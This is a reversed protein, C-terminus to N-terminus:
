ASYTRLQHAKLDEFAQLVARQADLYGSSKPGFMTALADRASPSFKLPNNDVAEVTTHNSSRALRKAQQRANLLQMLNETVLRLVSGIQQALEAPSSSAVIDEPLGAAKILRVAFDDSSTNGTTKVSLVANENPRSVPPSP